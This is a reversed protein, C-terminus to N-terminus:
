TQMFSNFELSFVIKLTFFFRFIRLLTYTIKGIFVNRSFWLMKKFFAQHYIRLFIYIYTLEKGLLQAYM